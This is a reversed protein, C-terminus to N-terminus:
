VEVAVNFADHNATFITGVNRCDGVLYSEPITDLLPEVVSSDPRLGFAIVVTDAPLDTKTGDPLTVTVGTTSITDVSGQVREIGGEQMLKFLATRTFIAISVCLSEEPLIDVVTVKKGAM